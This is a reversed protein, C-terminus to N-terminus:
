RAATGEPFYISWGRQRALAELDPNPNVAVAHQAIALMDADWRSNGFAAEISKKVVEHLAEPKGPGSPVRVLRDTVIGDEIEVVAALIRERAIGFQKMGARIVWENSSSVAWIECGQDQLREILEKMEPFVRGPFKREMFETAASMMVDERIGKHMAVMEGCMDEESVKGSQYEAHRARMARGLDAPVVGEEIEWNFFTEGADGSWLTGDCDFAAVRLELNLISQVFQQAAPITAQAKLTEM